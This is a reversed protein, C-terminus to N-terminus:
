FLNLPFEDSLATIDEIPKASTIVYVIQNTAFDNYKEINIIYPDEDKFSEYNKYLHELKNHFKRISTKDSFISYHDIWIMVQYSKNPLKKPLEIENMEIGM